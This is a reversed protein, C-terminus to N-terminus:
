YFPIVSNGSNVHSCIQTHKGHYNISVSQNIFFPRFYGKSQSANHVRHGMLKNGTGKSLYQAVWIPVTYM